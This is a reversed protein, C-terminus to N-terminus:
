KEGNKGGGNTSGLGGHVRAKVVVTSEWSAERMSETEKEVGEWVRVFGNQEGLTLLGEFICIHKIVGM